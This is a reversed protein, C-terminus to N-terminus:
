VSREGQAEGPESTRSSAYVAERVAEDSELAVGLGGAVTAISATFWTLVAYDDQGISRGLTREFAAPPVVVEAAVVIVVFLVVYLTLIGILVTAATTVNFLVVQDRVRPDPAREWLRHRAIVAVVTLVVAIAAMLLLRPWSMVSSTRWTDSTVLSFASAAFAAVLAGYLRAAFRWPRNARIMGLIVRIPGTNTALQRLAHRDGGTEERILEGILDVLTRRLRQRLHLPGLAPLSVVAIGHTPSIHRSVPRGGVRLPLDTVVVGLDWDRDLLADRAAEVLETLPAPPLVLRDEALETEWAVDDYARRLDAALDDAIGTTVDSALGPAVVV